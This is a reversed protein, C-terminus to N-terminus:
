EGSLGLSASIEALDKLVEFLTVSISVKSTKQLSASISALKEMPEMPFMWTYICRKVNRASIEALKKTEYQIFISMKMKKLAPRFKEWSEPRIVM